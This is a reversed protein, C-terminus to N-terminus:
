VPSEAIHKFLLANRIGKEVSAEAHHCCAIDGLGCEPCKIEELLKLKEETACMRSLDCYTGKLMGEIGNYAGYVTGIVDSNRLVGRIVGSLTANIAATPGGSQGVIANGKLINM